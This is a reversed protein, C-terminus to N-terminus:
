NHLDDCRRNDCRRREDVRNDHGHRQREALAHLESQGRRRDVAAHFLSAPQGNNCQLLRYERRQICGDCLRFAQAGGEDTVHQNSGLIFRPLTSNVGVYITVTAVDHTATTGDGNTAGPTVNAASARYTFTVSGVFDTM